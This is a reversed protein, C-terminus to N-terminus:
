RTHGGRKKSIAKANKVLLPSFDNPTLRINDMTVDVKKFKKSKEESEVDAKEAFDNSFTGHIAISQQRRSKKSMKLKRKELPKKFLTEIKKEKESSKKFFTSSFKYLFEPVEFKEKPEEKKKDDGVESMETTDYRSAADITPSIPDNIQM